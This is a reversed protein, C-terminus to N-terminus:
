FIRRLEKILESTDGSHIWDGKYKGEEFLLVDLVDIQGNYDCKVEDLIEVIETEDSV